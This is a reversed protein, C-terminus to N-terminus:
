VGAAPGMVKARNGMASQYSFDKDEEGTAAERASFFEPRPGGERYDKEADAAVEEAQKLAWAANKKAEAVWGQGDFFGVVAGAIAGILQFFYAGIAVAIIAAVSAGQWPYDAAKSQAQQLERRADYISHEQMQRLISARDRQLKIMQKRLEVDAVSFYAARLHERLYDHESDFYALLERRDEPTGQPPQPDFVGYPILPGEQARKVKASIGAKEELAALKADIAERDLRLKEQVPITPKTAM